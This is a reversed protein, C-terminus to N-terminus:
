KIGLTGDESRAVELPIEITEELKRVCFGNGVASPQGFVRGILQSYFPHEYTVKLLARDLRGKGNSKNQKPLWGFEVKTAGAVYRARM